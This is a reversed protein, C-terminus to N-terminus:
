KAVAPVSLDRYRFGEVGQPDTAGACGSRSGKGTDEKADQAGCASILGIVGALAFGTAM